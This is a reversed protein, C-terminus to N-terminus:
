IMNETSTIENYAEYVKSYNGKGLLDSYKFIYNQIKKCTM